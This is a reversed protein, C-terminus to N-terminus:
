GMCRRYIELEIKSSKKLRDDNDVSKIFYVKENDTYHREEIPKEEDELYNKLCLYIKM